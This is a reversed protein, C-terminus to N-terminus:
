GDHLGQIGYSLSREVRAHSDEDGLSGCDISNGDADNDQGFDGEAQIDYDLAEGCEFDCQDDAIWGQGGEASGDTSGILGDVASSYTSRWPYDRLARDHRQRGSAEEGISPNRVGALRLVSAAVGSM